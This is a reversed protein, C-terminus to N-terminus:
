SELMVTFAREAAQAVNTGSGNHSWLKIYLAAFCFPPLPYAKSATAADISVDTGYGNSRDLLPVYTGDVTDCVKIGLDATTWAAPMMIVGGAFLRKDIAASVNGAAEIVVKVPKSHRLAKRGTM